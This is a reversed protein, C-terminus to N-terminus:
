AAGGSRDGTLGLVDLHQDIAAGVHADWYDWTHAGPHEAYHHPVGRRELVSHFRRSDPLLHDETGCDFGLRPMAAIAADDMREVRADVDLDARAAGDLGHTWLMRETPAPTALEERSPLRASHAYISAYKKPYKLGLRIAGFGGMSLGSIAARGERVRFTRAVHEPLDKVIYDEFRQLPGLNAYFSNSGSPLIVLLPVTALRRVVNSRQLWARHDDTRGHLLYMVAFPPEGVEPLIATYTVQRELSFSPLEITAISTM